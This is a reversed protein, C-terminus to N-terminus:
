ADNRSTPYTCQTREDTSQAVRFLGLFLGRAGSRGIGTSPAKSLIATSQKPGRGTVHDPLLYRTSVSYKVFHGSIKGTDDISASVIAFRKTLSIMGLCPAGLVM